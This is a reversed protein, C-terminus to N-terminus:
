SAAPFQEPNSIGSQHPYVNSAGYSPQILSPDTPKTTIQSLM